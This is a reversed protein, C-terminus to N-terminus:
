WGAWFKWWPPTNLKRNAAALQSELAKTKNVLVVERGAMTEVAQTLVSNNKNAQVMEWGSWTAFAMAVMGFVVLVVVAQTLLTEQTPIRDWTGVIRVKM